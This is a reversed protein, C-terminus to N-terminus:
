RGSAKALADIRVLESLRFGLRGLHDMIPRIIKLTAKNKVLKDPHAM